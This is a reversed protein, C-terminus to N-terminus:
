YARASGLMLQFSSGRPRISYREADQGKRQRVASAIATGLPQRRVVSKIVLVLSSDQQRAASRPM